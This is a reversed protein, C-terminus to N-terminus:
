HRGRSNWFLRFNEVEMAALEPNSYYFYTRESVVIDTEGEYTSFTGEYPITRETEMRVKDGELWVLTFVISPFRLTTKSLKGNEYENSVDCLYSTTKRNVIVGCVTKFSGPAQPEDTIGVRADAKWNIGTGLAKLEQVRRITMVAECKTTWKDSFHADRYYYKTLGCQAEKLKIWALQMEQLYKKETADAKTILEQYLENLERDAKEHATQNCTIINFEPRPIDPCEVATNDFYGDTPDDARSVRGTSMELVLIGLVPMVLNFIKMRLKEGLNNKTSSNYTESQKFNEM